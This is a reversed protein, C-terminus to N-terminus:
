LPLFLPSLFIVFRKVGLGCLQTYICELSCREFMDSTRLDNKTLLQMYKNQHVSVLWYYQQQLHQSTQLENSDESSPVLTLPRPLSSPSLIFSLPYIGDYWPDYWWAM